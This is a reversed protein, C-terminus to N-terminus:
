EDQELEDQFFQEAEDKNVKGATNGIIMIVSEESEEGKGEKSSSLPNKKTDTLKSDAINQVNSM